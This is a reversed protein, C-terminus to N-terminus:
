DANGTAQKVSVQEPITEWQDPIPTFAAIRGRAVLSELYARAADRPMGAITHQVEALLDPPLPSAKGTPQVTADVVLSQGSITWGTVAVQADASVTAASVLQNRTAQEIQEKLPRNAPEAAARFTARAEL